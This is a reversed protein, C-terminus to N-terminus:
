NYILQIEAYIFWCSEHYCLVHNTFTFYVHAHPGYDRAWKIGLIVSLSAYVFICKYCVIIDAYQIHITMDKVIYAYNLFIIIM